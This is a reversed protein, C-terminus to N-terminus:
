KRKFFGDYKNILYDEPVKTLKDCLDVDKTGHTPVYFFQGENPIKKFKNVIKRFLHVPSIESVVIAPHVVGPNKSSTMLIYGVNANYRQGFKQIAKSDLIANHVIEPMTSAGSIRIAGFSQSQVKKVDM